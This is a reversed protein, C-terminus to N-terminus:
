KSASLPTPRAEGLRGFSHNGQSKGSAPPNQGKHWALRVENQQGSTPSLHEKPNENFGLQMLSM